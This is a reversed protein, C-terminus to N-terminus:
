RWGGRSSMLAVGGTMRMDAGGSDKSDTGRCGYGYGGDMGWGEENAVGGRLEKRGVLEILFSPSSAERSARFFASGSARLALLLNEAYVKLLIDEEVEIAPLGDLM